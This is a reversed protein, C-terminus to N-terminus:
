QTKIRTRQSKKTGQINHKIKLNSKKEGLFFFFFGQTNTTKGWILTSFICELKNNQDEALICYLEKSRMYMDDIKVEMM